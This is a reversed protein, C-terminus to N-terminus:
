QPWDAYHNRILKARTDVGPKLHWVVDDPWRNWDGADLARGGTVSLAYPRYNRAFLFTLMREVFSRETSSTANDGRSFDTNSESSGVYRADRNAGYGDTDVSADAGGHHGRM